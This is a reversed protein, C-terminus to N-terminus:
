FQFKLAFQVIRPNGVTTDYVGFAPSGVATNTIAFNAHNFINFLDARLQISYKEAFPFNKTAFVDWDQQYCARVQALDRGSNGFLANGRAVAPGGVTYTQNGPGGGSNLGSLVTGPQNTTTPGFVGPNFGGTGNANQSTFNQPSGTAFVNNLNGTLQPFTSSPTQGFLNSPCVPCTISSPLGSQFTTLGGVAWHGLFQQLKGTAFVPISYQYTAQERHTRDFGSLGRLVRTDLQNGGSNALDQTSAGSNNDISKSYTYASQLFTNGLHRSVTVGLANYTSHGNGTATNLGTPTFGLTGVRANPFTEPAVRAIPTV